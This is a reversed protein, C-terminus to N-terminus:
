SFATLELHVSVWQDGNIRCAFLTGYLWMFRVVVHVPASASAYVNVFKGSVLKDEHANTFSQARRRQYSGVM